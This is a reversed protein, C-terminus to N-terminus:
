NLSEMNWRSTLPDLQNKWLFHWTGSVSAEMPLHPLSYLHTPRIGLYRPSRTTCSHAFLGGQLEFHVVNDSWDCVYWQVDSMYDYSNNVLSLLPTDKYAPAWLKVTWDVGSTLVLGGAGRLFGKASGARGGDKLSQTSISTVMGFHSEKLSRVQRKRPGGAAASPIFHLGGAEDGCLLTSSEPAIALSSINGDVM